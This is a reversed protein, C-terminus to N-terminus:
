RHVEVESEITYNTVSWGGDQYGVTMEIEFEKDYLSMYYTTYNVTVICEYGACAPESLSYSDGRDEVYYYMVGGVEIGSNIQSEVVELVGSYDVAPGVVSTCGLLLFVFLAVLAKM